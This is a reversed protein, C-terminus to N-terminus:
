IVQLLCLWSIITICTEKESIYKKNSFEASQKEDEGLYHLLQNLARPELLASSQKGISEFVINPFCSDIYYRHRM